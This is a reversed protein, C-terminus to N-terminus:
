RGAAPGAFHWIASVLITETSYGSNLPRGGQAVGDIVLGPSTTFHPTTTSLYRYDLDATLGPALPYSIGAIAQYGFVWSTSNDFSAIGLVPVRSGDHLEVAGIGAGIHPSVPWGFDFDYVADTMFIEADRAGQAPHLGFRDLDNSAHRFEEEVRLGGFRCGLRVGAAFGSSWLQADKATPLYAEESGLDTWGAEGGIYWGDPQGPPQAEARPTRLAAACAVALASRLLARASM